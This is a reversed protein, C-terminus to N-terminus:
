ETVDEDEPVESVDDEAVLAVPLPTKMKLSDWQSETLNQVKEITGDILGILMTDREDTIRRSFALSNLADEKKLTALNENMCIGNILISEENNFINVEM